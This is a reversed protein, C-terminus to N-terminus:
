LAPKFMAQKERKTRRKDALSQSASPHIALDCKIAAPTAATKATAEAAAAASSALRSFCAFSIKLGNGGSMAVGSEGIVVGRTSSPRISKKSGRNVISALM